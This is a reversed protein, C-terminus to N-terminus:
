RPENHLFEPKVQKPLGVWGSWLTYTDTLESYILVKETNAKKIEWVTGPRSYAKANTIAYVLKGIKVHKTHNTTM